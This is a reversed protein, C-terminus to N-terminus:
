ETGAWGLLGLGNGFGMRGKACLFPGAVHLNLECNSLMASNGGVEERRM